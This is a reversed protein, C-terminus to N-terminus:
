RRVLCGKENKKQGESYFLMEGGMKHSKKAPDKWASCITRETGVGM